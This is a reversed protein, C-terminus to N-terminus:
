EGVGNKVSRPRGDAQSSLLSWGSSLRCTQKSLGHGQSLLLDHGGGRLM